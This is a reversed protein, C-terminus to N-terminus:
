DERKLKELEQQLAETERAVECGEGLQEQFRQRTEALVAPAFSETLRIEIASRASSPSNM